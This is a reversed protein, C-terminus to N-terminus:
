DTGDSEAKAADRLQELTSAALEAPDYDAATLKTILEAREAEEATPAPPAPTAGKKRGKTPAAPTAEPAAPAAKVKLDNPHSVWGEPVDSEKNFIRGIVNGDADFSYRWAPWFKKPGKRAGADAHKRM